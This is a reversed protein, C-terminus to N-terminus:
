QYLIPVGDFVISRADYTIGDLPVEPTGSARTDILVGVEFALFEDKSRAAEVETIRLTSARGSANYDYTFTVGRQPFPTDETARQMTISGTIHESASPIEYDASDGDGGTREVVRSTQSALDVADVIYVEGGILVPAYGTLNLIEPM